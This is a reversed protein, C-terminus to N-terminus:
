LGGPIGCEPVHASPAQSSNFTCHLTAGSVNRSFRPSTPTIWPTWHRPLLPLAHLKCLISQVFASHTLRFPSALPPQSPSTTTGMHTSITRPCSHPFPFTAVERSTMCLTLAEVAQPREGHPGWSKRLTLPTAKRHTALHKDTVQAEAGGPRSHIRSVLWVKRSLRIM